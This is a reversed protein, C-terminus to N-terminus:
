SILPNLSVSGAWNFMGGSDSHAVISYPSNGKPRTTFQHLGINIPGFRSRFPEKRKLDAFAIAGEEITLKEIDIRPLAAKPKAQSSTEPVLNSFNFKGDSQFVLSGFPKKVRIEHFIFGRKYISSLQLNVYLEDFSAFTEGGPENLAFGRVTLSFVYPNLKVQQVSATRKTISPLKKVMQSKIIAPLLFFGTLTYVVLICGIVILWKSRLWKQFLPSRWKM